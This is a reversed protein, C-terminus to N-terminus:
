LTPCRIRYPTPGRTPYLTPYRTPYPTPYEAPVAVMDPGTNYSGASTLRSPPIGEVKCAGTTTTPPPNDPRIAEVSTALAPRGATRRSFDVAGPPRATERSLCPNM